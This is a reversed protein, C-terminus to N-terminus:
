TCRRCCPPRRPPGSGGLVTCSAWAIRRYASSSATPSPRRSSLTAARAAGGLRSGSRPWKLRDYGAGPRRGAPARCGRRRALVGGNGWPRCARTAPTCARGTVAALPLAAGVAGRGRRPGVADHAWPSRTGAWIGPSGVNYQGYTPLGFLNATSCITVQRTEGANLSVAQVLRHQRGRGSSPNGGM